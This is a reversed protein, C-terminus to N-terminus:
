SKSRKLLIRFILFHSVLLAPVIIVPIYYAGGLQGAHIRTLGQPLANLLDLTGVTNFVWVLSTAIRWHNQLGIVSVLALIATLLDGYATPLAFAPSLDAAVVGPLLFSLGLYRFCHIFALLTIADGRSRKDLVPVIYWKAILGYVIVGMGLSFTLIINEEM